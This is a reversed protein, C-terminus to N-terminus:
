ESVPFGYHRKVDDSIKDLNFLSRVEENDAPDELIGLLEERQQEPSLRHFINASDIGNAFLVDGVFSQAYKDDLGYEAFLQHSIKDMFNYPAKEEGELSAGTENVNM